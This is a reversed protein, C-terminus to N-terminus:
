YQSNGRGRREGRLARGGRPAAAGDGGGPQVGARTAEARVADTFARAAAPLVEAAAHRVLALERTLRAGGA